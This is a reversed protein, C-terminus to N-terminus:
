SFLFCECSLTLSRVFRKSLKRRRRRERERGNGLILRKERERKGLGSM